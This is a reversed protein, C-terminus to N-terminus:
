VTQTSPKQQTLAWPGHLLGYFIASLSFLLVLGWLMPAYTQHRDYIFGAVVPGLVTGWMYFLGMTGRITAFFRRGFLDGVTAWSVPFISEALTFLITFAWLPWEEKAEVLLVLAGTSIVMSLAMLRPKSV